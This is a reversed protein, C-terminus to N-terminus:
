LVNVARATVLVVLLLSSGAQVMMLGKAWHSLPMVDTASFATGNSFAFYLYDVLRPHWGPPAIRANGMQPFQFDPYTALSPDDRAAARRGPGGADLEWFWLAFVVVNTLWIVGASLILERGTLPQNKTLLTQILRVLDYGNSITIAAMVLMVLSRQWREARGHRHPVFVVVLAVLVLYLAIMIAAPVPKFHSPLLWFLGFTVLIMLMAPLTSERSSDEPPKPFPRIPM